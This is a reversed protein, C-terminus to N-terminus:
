EVYKCKAEAIEREEKVLCAEAKAVKREEEVKKQLMAGDIVAKQAAALDSEAQELQTCLEENEDM